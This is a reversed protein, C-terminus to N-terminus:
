VCMKKKLHTKNGMQEFECKINKDRRLHSLLVQEINVILKNVVLPTITPRQICINQEQIPGHHLQM